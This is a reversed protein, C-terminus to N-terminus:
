KDLKRNFQMLKQVDKPLSKEVSEQTVEPNKRLDPVTFKDHDYQREGQALGYYSPNGSMGMFNDKRQEKGCIGRRVM